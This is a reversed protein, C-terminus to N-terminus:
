ALSQATTKSYSASDSTMCALIDTPGGPSEMSVKALCAPAPVTTWSYKAALPTADTPAIDISALSSSAKSNAMM